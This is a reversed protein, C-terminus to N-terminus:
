PSLYRPVFWIAATVTMWVGGLAAGQMIPFTGTRIVLFAAGTAVVASWGIIGAAKVRAPNVKWSRAATSAQGPPATGQSRGPESLVEVDQSQQEARTPEKGGNAPLFWSYEYDQSKSKRDSAATM